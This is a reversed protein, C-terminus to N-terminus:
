SLSIAMIIVNKNQLTPQCDSNNHNARLKKRRFKNQDSSQTLYYQNKLPIVMTNWDIYLDTLIMLIILDHTLTPHFAYSSPITYEYKKFCIHMGCVILWMVHIKKM